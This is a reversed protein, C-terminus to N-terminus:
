ARTVRIAFPDLWQGLFWASGGDWMEGSLIAGGPGTADIFDHVEGIEMLEPLEGRFAACTARDAETVTYDIGGASLKFGIGPLAGDRLGKPAPAPREVAVDGEDLSIWVGDGNGDLAWLEDWWGRGYDFRVHGIVEVPGGPLDVRDHLGILMPAEHMVGHDGMPALADAERFLTTGCSPCDFMRTSRALAPFGYGCNPCTPADDM